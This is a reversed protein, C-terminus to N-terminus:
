TLRPPTCPMGRIARPLSACYNTYHVTVLLVVGSRRRTDGAVGASTGSVEDLTKIGAANLLARLPVIDNEAATRNGVNM